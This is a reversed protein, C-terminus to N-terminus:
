WSLRVISIQHEYNSEGSWILSATAPLFCSLASRPSLLHCSAPLSLRHLTPCIPGKPYTSRHCRAVSACLHVDSASFHLSLSSILIADSICFAVSQGYIPSLVFWVFWGFCGFCGFCGYDFLTNGRRCVRGGISVGRLNTCVAPIILDITRASLWSESCPPKTTIVSAPAGIRIRHRWCAGISGTRSAAVCYAALTASKRISCCWSTMETLQADTTAHM